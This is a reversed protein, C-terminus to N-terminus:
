NWNPDNKSKASKATEKDMEVAVQEPTKQGVLVDQVYKSLDGPNWSVYDLFCAKGEGAALLDAIEKVVGSLQVTVGNAYPIGPSAKFWANQGELGSMLAVIKKSLEANKGGIAVYLAGPAGTSVISGEDFPFGFAGIDDIKGTDGSLKVLDPIVWSGMPYMAATGDILAAEAKAYDDSLYTKNVFGKDVLEKTKAIGDQFLKLDVYHKKNTMFDNAFQNVEDSSKTERARAILAIIQDTWADKASYFVPVVGKAKIAACVTLLDAWTKPIQVGADRFAKKNYFMLATTNEGVPAAYVKGDFTFNPLKLNDGYISDLGLGSLDAFIDQVKLKGAVSTLNQMFDIDAFQGSAFRAMRVQDGQDGEPLKDVIIKAGLENSKSNVLDIMAQAGPKGTEVWSTHTQLTLTVIEKPAETAKSESAATSVASNATTTNSETKGGCAAFSVALALIVVLALVTKLIKSM